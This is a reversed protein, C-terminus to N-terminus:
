GHDVGGLVYGIGRGGVRAESRSLRQGLQEQGVGVLAAVCFVIEEHFLQKPSPPYDLRQDVWCIVCGVLSVSGVPSRRRTTNWALQV